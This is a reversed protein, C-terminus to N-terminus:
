ALICDLGDVVLNTQAMHSGFWDCSFLIRDEDLYTSMTEPWHVWPTLIFRHTKGGLELREGDAVTRIRAPDLGVHDVLMPKAAESTLLVAEPYRELVWPLGGSHDQETHSSVVYDIKPVGELYARLVDLKQPEVADILAIK